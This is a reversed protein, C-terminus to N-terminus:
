EVSTISIVVWSWQQKKKNYSRKQVFHIYEDGELAHEKVLAPEIYADDVFAFVNNEYREVFGTSQQVFHKAYEEAGEKVRAVYYLEQKTADKEMKVDYVKDAEWRIDATLRDYHFYGRTVSGLTHQAFHITQKAENVYTVFIPEYPLADYLIEKAKEALPMLSDRNPAAVTNAYWEQQQLDIIRQPVNNWAQQRVRILTDLEYKAEALMGQAVFAEIAQEQLKVIMEAKTKMVLAAAYCAAREEEHALQALLEWVWFVNAKQRVFDIAINRAEERKGIVMLLRAEHYPLYTYNAHKKRVKQLTPLFMEIQASMDKQTALLLLSKCYKNFLAEALPPMEIIEGDKTFSSAKYDISSLWNFSITQFVHVFPDPALAKLLARIFIRGDSKGFVFAEIFDAKHQLLALMETIFAYSHNKHALIVRRLSSLYSTKLMDYTQKKFDFQCYTNLTKLNQTYVDIDKESAKLYDYMVWGLTIMAQEQQPAQQLYNTVITFAKQLQGSKRLANAKTLPDQEIRGGAQQVKQRIVEIKHLVQQIADSDKGNEELTDVFTPEDIKKAFFDKLLQLRIFHTTSITYLDDHLDKTTFM